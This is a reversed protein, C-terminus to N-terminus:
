CDGVRGPYRSILPHDKSGEVDHEQAIALMPVAVSCVFLGSVIPKWTRSM